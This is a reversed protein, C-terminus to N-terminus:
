SHNKIYKGFVLFAESPTNFAYRLGVLLDTQFFTQRIFSEINFSQPGETRPMIKAIDMMKM